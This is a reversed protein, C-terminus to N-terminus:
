SKRKKAHFSVRKRFLNRNIAIHLEYKTPQPTYIANLQDHMLSLIFLGISQITTDANREKTMKSDAMENQSFLPVALFWEVLDLSIM